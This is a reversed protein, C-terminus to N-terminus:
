RVTVPLTVDVKAPACYGSAAVCYFYSLKGTLDHRGASAAKDVHLTVVLPDVPDGYYNADLKDAPPPAPNGITGEAAEVLGPTAPVKLKIKPYRNLHIGAKPRLKVTVEADAGPAVAAPAVEISVAVPPEDASLASVFPGCAFLLGLVSSFALVLPIKRM